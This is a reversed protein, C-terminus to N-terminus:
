GTVFCHRQQSPWQMVKEESDNDIENDVEAIYVGPSQMKLESDLFAVAPNATSLDDFLIWSAHCSQMVNGQLYHQTAQATAPRKSSIINMQNHEDPGVIGHLNFNTM